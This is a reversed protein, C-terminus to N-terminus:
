GFARGTFGAGGTVDACKATTTNKPNVKGTALVSKTEGAAFTLKKTEDAYITQFDSGTLLAGDVIVYTKPQYKGVKKYPM